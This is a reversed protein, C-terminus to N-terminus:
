NEEQLPEEPIPGNPPDVNPPQPPPPQQRAPGRPQIVGGGQPQDFSNRRKVLLFLTAGIAVISPIWFNEADDSKLLSM